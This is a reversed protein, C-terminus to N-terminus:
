SLDDSTEPGEGPQSLLQCTEAIHRKDAALRAQWQAAPQLPSYKDSMIQLGGQLARGLVDQVVAAPCCQLMSVGLPPDHTNSEKHKDSMQSEDPM